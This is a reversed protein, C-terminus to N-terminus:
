GDSQCELFLLRLLSDLNAGDSSYILVKRGVSCTLGHELLLLVVLGSFVIELKDGSFLVDVPNANWTKPHAPSM